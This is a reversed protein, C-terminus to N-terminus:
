PKTGEDAQAVVVNRHNPNFIQYKFNELFPRIRGEVAHASKYRRPSLPLDFDAHLFEGM